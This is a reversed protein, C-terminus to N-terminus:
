RFFYSGPPNQPPGSKLRAALGNFIHLHKLAQPLSKADEVLKEAAQEATGGLRLNSEPGAPVLAEVWLRIGRGRGILFYNYSSRVTRFLCFRSTSAPGGKSARLASGAVTNGTV